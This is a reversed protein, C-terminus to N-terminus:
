KWFLTKLTRNFEKVKYDIAEKDTVKDMIGTFVEATGLTLWFCLCLLVYFTVIIPVLTVKGLITASKFLEICDKSVDVVMSTVFDKSFFRPTPNYPM